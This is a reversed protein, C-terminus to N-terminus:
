GANETRSPGVRVSWFVFFALSVLIIASQWVATHVMDFIKPYNAGLWFLSTVRVLNLLQIAIIGTVIGVVKAKWSAPFAAMAAILLIMAEVGNCGNEVNVAFRPSSIVTDVVITNMGAFRLVETSVKAIGATFPVIAHDNVPNAAIILYLVVVIAFFRVLFWGSARNM